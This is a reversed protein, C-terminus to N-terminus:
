QILLSCRYQTNGIIKRTTLPLLSTQTDSPFANRLTKLPNWMTKICTITLRRKMHVYLGVNGWSINLSGLLYELNWIEKIKKTKSSGDFGLINVLKNFALNLYFYLNKSICKLTFCDKLISFNLIFTKWNKYATETYISAFLFKNPPVRYEIKQLQLM